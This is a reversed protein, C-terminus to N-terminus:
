LSSLYVKRLQFTDEIGVKKINKLYGDQNKM